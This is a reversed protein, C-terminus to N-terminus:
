GELTGNITPKAAFEKALEIFNDGHLARTYVRVGARWKVAVSDVSQVSPVKEAPTNSVKNKAM